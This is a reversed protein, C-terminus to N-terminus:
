PQLSAKIEKELEEMEQMVQEHPILVSAGSHYDELAETIARVQWSQEEVYSEIAQQILWAKPRDLSAALTDLRDSLNDNLRVSTIKAM